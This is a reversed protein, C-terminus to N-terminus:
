KDPLPVQKTTRLYAILDLVEADKLTALLGQPMMSVPVVDRSQIESKAVVIADDQGVIRMTLRRKDESAISGAYTRGDRM